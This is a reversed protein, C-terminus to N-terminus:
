VRGWASNQAFNDESGIKSTPHKINNKAMMEQVGSLFAASPIEVTIHRM